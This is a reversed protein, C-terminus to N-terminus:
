IKRGHCLMERRWHQMIAPLYWALQERTAPLLYRFIKVALEPPACTAGIGARLAVFLEFYLRHVEASLLRFDILCARPLMIRWRGCSYYPGYRFFEGDWVYEMSQHLRDRAVLTCMSCGTWPGGPRKPEGAGEWTWNARPTRMMAIIAERGDACIKM